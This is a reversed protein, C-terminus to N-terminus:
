PHTRSVRDSLRKELVGLRLELKEIHAQQARVLATLEKVGALAVGGEDILAIAKDSDGVGFAARFDEATPGIHTVRAGERKYNWRTVDLQEIRPLVEVAAFNEKTARSSAGVLVGSANWLTVGNAVNWSPASNNSFWWQGGSDGIAFLQNNANASSHVWNGNLYYMGSTFYTIGNWPLVSFANYTPQARFVVPGSNANALITLPHTPANTGIGVNGTNTNYINNGNQAWGISDGTAGTAGTAGTPGTPGSAGAGTAGTPGTAGTAGAAGTAGTAGVTGATGM